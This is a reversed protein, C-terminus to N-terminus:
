QKRFEGVFIERGESHQKRHQTVQLHVDVLTSRSIKGHMCLLPWPRVSNSNMPSFNPLPLSSFFFRFNFECTEHSVSCVQREHRSCLQICKVAFNTKKQKM